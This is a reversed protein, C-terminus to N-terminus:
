LANRKPIFPSAVSAPFLGFEHHKSQSFRTTQINKCINIVFKYKISICYFLIFNVYIFVHKICIYFTYVLLNNTFEKHKIYLEKNKMYNYVIIQVLNTFKICIM